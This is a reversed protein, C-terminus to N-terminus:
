RAQWQLLAPSPRHEASARLLSDQLEFTVLGERGNSEKYGKSGRRKEKGDVRLDFMGVEAGEVGLMVGWRACSFGFM